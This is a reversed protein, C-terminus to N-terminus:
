LKRPPRTNVKGSPSSSSGLSNYIGKDTDEMIMRTKGASRARSPSASCQSTTSASTSRILHSSLPPSSSLSYDCRNLETTSSSSANNSTHDADEAWYGCYLGSTTRLANTDLPDLAMILVQLTSSSSRRKYSNKITGFTIVFQENRFM